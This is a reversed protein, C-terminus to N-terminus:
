HAYAAGDRAFDETLKYDYFSKAIHQSLVEIFTRQFVRSDTAISPIAHTTPFSFDHETTRFVDSGGGAIDYVTTTVDARGKLLTKSEHLSFSDIDIAVVMDAKVGRGIDVFDSEDWDNVDMWDSVEDQRVVDIKEVNQRLIRGVNEAILTSTTGDGYTSPNIVCVVAVRKEKLGAYRAAIKTGDGYALQYLVACGTSSALILACFVALPWPLTRWCSSDM